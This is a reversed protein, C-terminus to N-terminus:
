HAFGTQGNFVELCGLGFFVFLVLTVVVYCLVGPDLKEHTRDWCFRTKKFTVWPTPPPIGLPAALATLAVRTSGGAVGFVCVQRFLPRFTCCQSGPNCIHILM